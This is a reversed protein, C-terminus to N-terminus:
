GKSDEGHGREGTARRSPLRGRDCGRVARYPRAADRRQRRGGDGGAVAPGAFTAKSQGKRSGVGRETLGEEIRRLHCEELGSSRRIRTRAVGASSCGAGGAGCARCDAVPGPQYQPRSSARSTSATFGTASSACTVDDCERRHRARRRRCRTSPSEAAAPPRARPRSHAHVRGRRNATSAGLRGIPMQHRVAAPPRMPSRRGRSLTSNKSGRAPSTDGDIWRRRRRTCLAAASGAAACRRRGGREVRQQQRFAAGPELLDGSTLGRAGSGFRTCNSPVPSQSSGSM